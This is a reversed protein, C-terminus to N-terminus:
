HLDPESPTDRLISLNAAFETLIVRYAPSYMKRYVDSHHVAPYGSSRMTDMYAAIDELMPTLLIKEAMGSIWERYRELRARSGRCERSSRLFAELLIEPDGGTALFPRLNIRAMDGTDSIVDLVPEPPGASLEEMEDMLYERVTEYSGSSHRNGMSAQHLLKYLDGCEMLPYRSLHSNVVRALRTENGSEM